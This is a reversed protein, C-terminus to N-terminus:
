STRVPVLRGVTAVFGTLVYAAIVFWAARLNVLPLAIALLLNGLGFVALSIELIRSQWTRRKAHTGHLISGANRADVDFPNGHKDFNAPDLDRMRGWAEDTAFLAGYFSMVYVINLFVNLFLEPLVALSVIVGEFVEGRHAAFRAVPGSAIM